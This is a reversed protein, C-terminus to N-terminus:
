NVTCSEDLPNRVGSEDVVTRNVDVNVASSTFVWNKACTCACSVDSLLVDVKVAAM